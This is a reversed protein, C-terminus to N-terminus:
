ATVGARRLEAAVQRIGDHKSVILHDVGIEELDGILAPDFAHISAPVGLARCRYALLANADEIQLASVLLKAEAINAEALVAEDTADGLIITAPLGALKSPDTDIAVVQEGRELFARLLRRGLANVGVV